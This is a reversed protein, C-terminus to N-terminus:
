EFLPNVPSYIKIAKKKVSFEIEKPNGGYEGDLTWEEPKELFTIKINDAKVFILNDDEYNGKLVNILLPIAQLAKFNKVILLEFKGDNLVIKQGEFKFLGAVSTSNSIAGYHAGGEFVKGDYEVRVKKPKLQMLLPISQFVFGNILYASYGLKNKMKQNTAYSISSGPGFCAVYNFYRDNFQGIDYENTHGEMITKVADYYYPPIGLTNAFDNTSGMPIYGVPIDLGAKSIGSVVENLTGDGGCAVVFDYDAAKDKAANVADGTGTSQYLTVEYEKPPFSREIAMPSPRTSDKGAVPNYIILVKKM